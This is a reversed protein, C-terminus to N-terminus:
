DKIEKGQYLWIEMNRKGCDRAFNAKYQENSILILCFLQNIVLPAIHTLREVRSDANMGGEEVFIPM